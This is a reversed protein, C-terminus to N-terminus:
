ATEDDAERPADLLMERVRVSEAMGVGLNAAAIATNANAIINGALSSVAKARRCEDQLEDQSGCAELRELERFLADNLTKLNNAM